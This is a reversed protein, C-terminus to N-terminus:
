LTFTKKPVFAPDPEFTRVLDFQTYGMIRGKRGVPCHLTHAKHDGRKKKCHKCKTQMTVDM